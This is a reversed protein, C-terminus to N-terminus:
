LNLSRGGDVPLIHGSIYPADCILFAVSRAIDAPTGPRKLATRALIKQKEVEDLGQEPWLIAGPAVGNVRVQPGLEWALSKTLMALGAKAINYVTHRSMPREAHIDVLNVICGQRARLYPVAAQSLFLPGKLNSGLLKDWDTETIEGIPTPYFDSANNILADLGGWARAAQATLDILAPTDRLDAQLLLTSNPRLAELEAQLAQAAVRSARYHLALNFGRGHLERAIAAGIRKAAGTILATPHTMNQIMTVFVLM